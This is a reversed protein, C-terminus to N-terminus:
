KDVKEVQSEKFFHSMKLFCKGNDEGEETDDGKKQSTYKWIPFKAIAHQGRKVIYGREKWGNYTHIAEPEKLEKENGDSDTVLFVRGTTGIIGDNMLKISNEMIIATNTMEQGKKISKTLFKKM